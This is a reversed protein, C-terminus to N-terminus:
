VQGSRPMTVMQGNTDPHEAGLVRDRVPLLGTFLTAPPPGIGRLDTM